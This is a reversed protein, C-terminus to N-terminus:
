RDPKPGYLRARAAVGEERHAVADRRERGTAPRGAERPWRTPGVALRLVPLGSALEVEEVPQQGSHGPTATSTM